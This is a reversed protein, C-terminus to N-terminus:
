NNPLMLVSIRAVLNVACRFYVLTADVQTVGHTSGYAVPHTGLCSSLPWLSKPLFLPLQSPSCVIVSTDSNKVIDLVPPSSHTRSQQLLMVIYQPDAKTDVPRSRCLAKAMHKPNQQNGGTGIRDVVGYQHVIREVQADCRNVKSCAAHHRTLLSQCEAMVIGFGRFHLRCSILAPCRIYSLPLM